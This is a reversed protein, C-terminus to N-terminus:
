PLRMHIVQGSKGLNVFTKEKFKMEIGGANGIDLDFAAGQREIKEGPQLLVQFPEQQDIKIRLWTEEIAKISLIGADESVAAPITKEIKPPSVVRAPKPGVAVQPEPPKPLVQVPPKLEEKPAEPALPQDVVKEQEVSPVPTADVAKDIAAPPATAVASSQSDAVKAVPEYQQYIFFVVIAIIVIVFLTWLYTKYRIVKQTFSERLPEAEPINNQDKQLSKLYAEYSELIPKSDLDLARAFTKIFNKTYIPEPLNAFDGKEIAELNVVSVRTSSFIDKLTLGLSERKSKLGLFDETANQGNTM